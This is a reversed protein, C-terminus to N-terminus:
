FTKYQEFYSTSWSCVIQVKKYKNQISFYYLLLFIIYYFIM